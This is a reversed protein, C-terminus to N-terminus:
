SPQHALINWSYVNNRVSYTGMGLCISRYPKNGIAYRFCTNRCDFVASVLRM